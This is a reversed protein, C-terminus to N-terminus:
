GTVPASPVRVDLYNVLGGGLAALVAEASRIKAVVDRAEGLRVEPGAHLWLRGHGGDVVVRAVQPAFTSGLAGAVRAAAAVDAGRAELEPLGAPPTPVTTVAVGRRDILEVTGAPTARWAVPFRPTVEVRLTGPLVRRVQVEDVWALEEVRSTVAGTDVLLLAAGQEVGTAARVEDAHAGDVGVVRVRNVDLLPSLVAGTLAGALALAGLLWLLRRLRRRGAERTVAARRARVRPDMPAPRPRLPRARSPTARPRPPAVTSM